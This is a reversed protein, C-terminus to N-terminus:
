AKRGWLAANDGETRRYDNEMQQLTDHVRRMESHYAVLAEYSSDPAEMARRSYYAAVDSSTEDGLWPALLNGDRRLGGLAAGIQDLAASFSTRLTPIMHPQLRLVDHQQRDVM